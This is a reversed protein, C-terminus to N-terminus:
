LLEMDKYYVIDYKYDLKKSHGIKHLVQRIRERSVGFYEGAERLNQFALKLQPCYVIKKFYLKVRHEIKKLKANYRLMIMKGSNTGDRRNNAQEKFTAWKCNEPSYGKNNNIREITLGEPREGMDELFNNFKDWRECVTIGRGGYHKFQPLKNNTCRQKMNSWTQYEPTTLKGIYGNSTHEVLNSKQCNLKNGDIYKVLKYKFGTLEHSMLITKDSANLKRIIYGKHYKYWRFKNLYEFDEDDVLVYNNPHMKTSCDIQKM